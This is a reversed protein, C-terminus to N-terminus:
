RNLELNRVFIPSLCCGLLFATGAILPASHIGAPFTSQDAVLSGLLATGLVQGMQRSANLVDAASGHRHQSSPRDTRAHHSFLVFQLSRLASHPPLPPIPWAAM